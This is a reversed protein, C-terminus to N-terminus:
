RLKHKDISNLMRSINTLNFIEVVFIFYIFFYSKEMLFHCLHFDLKWLLFRSCKWNKWVNFHIEAYMCKFEKANAQNSASPTRRGIKKKPNGADMRTRFTLLHKNVNGLNGSTSKKEYKKLPILFACHLSWCYKYDPANWNLVLIVLVYKVKIINFILIFCKWEEFIIVFMCAISFSTLISYINYKHM